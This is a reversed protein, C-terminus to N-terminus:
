APLVKRARLVDEAIQERLAELSAFRKEARLHQRFFVELDRDYLDGSFDLLHVELVRETSQPTVTPRTGINAVGSLREGNARVSVAYVGNPPLQESEPRLNATPFGLTRGLKKGAIVAGLVSFERGLLREAFDLRGEEVAGRIVTSSVSTGEVTVAPLGAVEFDFTRGLSRLMDLNGQRGKGFAWGEGVCIQRLPRSSRVLERVFEEAPTSAFGTTFDVVLAHRFGIEGILRLKHRTSTLLAPPKEPRLIMAPHPDFTLAVPTGGAAAATRLTHELVARHGLHVGDFVGISLFLPGPLGSLGTISRLVNVTAAQV